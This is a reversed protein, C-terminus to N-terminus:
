WGLQYIFFSLFYNAMLILISSVVVSQTTANGVARAGGFTTCGYYTGVWSIILGFFCSKIIGVGMDNLGVFQRIGALYNEPNLELMHTYFLYGGAIGCFMSFLTLCPVAIIGGLLRPIVLYHYPDIGLTKLADIQETINMIGLEATIASGARATVMLATIIPGVERIMGLSVIAGIFNHAGLKSLAVYSQLALALGIFAGTLVIIPLSEVGIHKIQALVYSVKLPTRFLVRISQALFLVFAGVRSCFTFALEGLRAALRLPM